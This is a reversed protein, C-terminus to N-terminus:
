QQSGRFKGLSLECTTMRVLSDSNLVCGSVSFSGPPMVLVLQLCIQGTLRNDVDLRSHRQSSSAQGTNLLLGSSALVLSDSNLVCGSVSFSGAAMVLEPLQLGFHGIILKSDDDLRCHRQSSSAQGTDLM